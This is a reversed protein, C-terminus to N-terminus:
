PLAASSETRHADTCASAFSPLSAVHHLVCWARVICCAVRMSSCVIRGFSRTMASRASRPSSPRLPLGRSGVAYGAGSTLRTLGPDIRAQASRRVHAGGTLAPQLRRDCGGSSGASYIADPREILLMRGHACIRSIWAKAFCSSRLIRPTNRAIVGVTAHGVARRGTRADRADCTAATSPWRM